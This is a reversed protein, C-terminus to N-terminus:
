DAMPAVVIWEKWTMSGRLEHFMGEPDREIEALGEEMFGREEVSIPPDNEPHLLYGSIAERLAPLGDAIQAPQGGDNNRVFWVFRSM